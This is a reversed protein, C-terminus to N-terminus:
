KGKMSPQIGSENFLKTKCRRDWGHSCSIAVVYYDLLNSPTPYDLISLTTNMIDCLAVFFNSTVCPVRRGFLSLWLEFHLWYILTTFFHTPRYNWAHLDVTSPHYLGLKHFMITSLMRGAQHYLSEFLKMSYDINGKYISELITWLECPTQDFWLNLMYVKSAKAIWM